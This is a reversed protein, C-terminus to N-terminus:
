THPRSEIYDLIEQVTILRTMSDPPIEIGFEDEVGMAIEVLEFSDANYNDVLSAEPIFEEDEVAMLSRIVKKLREEITAM